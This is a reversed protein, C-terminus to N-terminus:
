PPEPPSKSDAGDARGAAEHDDADEGAGGGEVSPAEEAVDDFGEGRGKCDMWTSPLVPYQRPRPQRGINAVLFRRPPQCRMRPPPYSAVFFALTM